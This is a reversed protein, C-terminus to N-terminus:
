WWFEEVTRFTYVARLSKGWEAKNSGRAQPNDFWFTWGHQLPHRQLPQLNDAEKVPTIEGEEKETTSRPGVEKESEVVM